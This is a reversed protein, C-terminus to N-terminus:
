NNDEKDATGSTAEGDNWSDINGSLSNNTSDATGSTAEGDNWDNITASTITVESNEKITITYSYELGVEFKDVPITASYKDGNTTTFILTADDFEQPIVIASSSIATVYGDSDKTISTDFTLETSESFTVKATPDTLNFGATKTGIGSITVVLADLDNLTVGAGAEITLSVKSLLHNFTLAVNSSSVNNNTASLIDVQESSTIPHETLDVGNVYPYYAFIEVSGGSTPLRLPDDSTFKDSGAYTYDKNAGLGGFTADVATSTMYVGIHDTSVWASKDARTAINSTFTMANDGSPATVDADKTCGIAALAIGIYLLAKKM